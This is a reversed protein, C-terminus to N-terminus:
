AKDRKKPSKLQDKISTRGKANGGVTRERGISTGKKAATSRASAGGPRVGYSEKTKVSVKGLDQSSIEPRKNKDKKAKQSEVDKKRIAKMSSTNENNQSNREDSKEKIKRAREKSAEFSDRREKAKRKIELIEREKRLRDTEEQQKAYEEQKRKAEDQSEKIKREQEERQKRADELEEKRRAKEEAADKKEKENLGSDDKRNAEKVRKEAEDLRTAAETEDAKYEELKGEMKGLEYPYVKENEEKEQKFQEEKKESEIVQKGKETIRDDLEKTNINRDTYGNYFTIAKALDQEEEASYGQERSFKKFKRYNEENTLDGFQDNLKYAKIAMDRANKQREEESLGKIPMSTLFEDKVADIKHMQEKDSIGENKYKKLATEDLTKEEFKGKTKDFKVKGAYDNYFNVSNVINQEENPALGQKEAFKKFKEYNGENRLDGFKENLRYSAIALNRAREESEERSMGSNEMYKSYNDKVADIKYMQELDYIGNEQYERVTSEELEKGGYEKKLKDKKAENEKEIKQKEKEQPEYVTTVEDGVNIVKDSLDKQRVFAMKEQEEKQSKYTKKPGKRANENENGEIIGNEGYKFQPKNGNILRIADERRRLQEEKDRKSIGPNEREIDEGVVKRFNKLKKSDNEIDGFRAKDKFAQISATEALKEKDSGKYGNLLGHKLIDEKGKYVDIVDGIDYIKQDICQHAVGGKKFLEKAKDPGLKQLAKMFNDHNLGYNTKYIADDIDTYKEGLYGQTFAKTGGKINVAGAAKDSLGQAFKGGGYIGATLYQEAKSPDVITAAAALAGGVLAGAGFSLARRMARLPRFKKGRKVARDRYYSGAALLGTNISSKINRKKNNVEPTNAINANSTNNDIVPNSNTIAKAKIVRKEKKNANDTTINKPRQERRAFSYKSANRNNRRSQRTTRGNDSEWNSSNNNIINRRPNNTRNRGTNSGLAIRSDNIRSGARRGLQQTNNSGKVPRRNAGKVTPIASPKGKPKPLSTEKEGGKEGNDIFGFPNSNKSIKTKTTKPKEDDEDDKDGHPAKGTLRQISNMMLGAAAAGGLAAPTSAKEFGFMKKIFKEAPMMFGLAVLAYVPHDVILVMASGMIITYILYHIPQMLANFIYEKLWLNFAQAKGDNVKDIPYTIAVLPAIMTLFAMWLVRKLYMFTFVCTYIVLVLYIVTFGFSKYARDATPLGAEFRIMGEFNTGWLLTDNKSRLNEDFINQVGSKDKFKIDSPVEIQVNEIDSKKCLETLQESIYLIFAMLYHMVFVICLAVLWDMIMQKYKAKDKSASSLVIRIGVYVLITLLAVIALTRLTKYWSAVTTQLIQASSQYTVIESTTSNGIIDIVTDSPTSSNNNIELEYLVYYKIISIDGTMIKYVAIYAKTENENYWAYKIESSGNILMSYSFDSTSGEPQNSSATELKDEVVTLDIERNKDYGYNEKFSTIIKEETNIIGIDEREKEEGGGWIIRDTIPITTTNVTENKSESPNIFNIDFLPISNSFILGPTYMIFPLEFSGKIDKVFQKGSSYVVVGSGIATVLGGGVVTAMGSSAIASTGALFVSGVGSVTATGASWAAIGGAIGLGAVGIAGIGVILGIVLFTFAIGNFDSESGSSVQIVVPAQSVFSNQLIELVSDGLFLLFSKIPALLKGGASKKNNKTSETYDFEDCYSVNNYYPVIFNFLLIFILAILVKKVINKQTFTNNM